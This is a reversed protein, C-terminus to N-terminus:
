RTLHGVVKEIEAPQCRDRDLLEQTALAVKWRRSAKPVVLGEKGQIHVGLCELSDAADVAGDLRQVGPRLVELRAHLGGVAVELARM